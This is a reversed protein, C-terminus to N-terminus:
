LTVAHILPRNTKDDRIIQAPGRLTRKRKQNATGNKKHSASQRDRTDEDGDGVPYGGQHTPDRRIRQMPKKRAVYAVRGMNVGIQM